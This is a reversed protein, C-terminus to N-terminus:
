TSICVFTHVACPLDSTKIDKRLARPNLNHTPIDIFTFLVPNYSSNEENGNEIKM